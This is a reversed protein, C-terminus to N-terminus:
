LFFKNKFTGKTAPSNLEINQNGKPFGARYFIYEGLCDCEAPFAVQENTPQLGVAQM